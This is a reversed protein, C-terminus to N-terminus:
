DHWPANFVLNYYNLRFIRSIIKWSFEKEELQAAAQRCANENAIGIVVILRDRRSVMEDPTRIPVGEFSQGAIDRNNDLLCEVSIGISQFARLLQRGFNGAGFVAIERRNPISLAEYLIETPGPKTFCAASADYSAVYEIYKWEEEDIRNRDLGNEDLLRKVRSSCRILYDLKDKGRLHYIPSLLTRISRLNWARRVDKGVDHRVDLFRDVEDLEVFHYHGREPRSSHISSGPNDKRYFYLPRDLFVISKASLFTKAFFSVDQYAAGPTELFRIKERELFEKRYVASWHGPPLFECLIDPEQDVRCIRGPLDERISVARKKSEEEFCEMFAAKVIDPKGFKEAERYLEDFMEPASYDDSELFGVYEGRAHDMGTNFTHGSGANSKEVLRIRADKEAYDRLMDSGGDTSGDNVAVIEMDDGLTQALLSDM